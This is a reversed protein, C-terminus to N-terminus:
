RAADLAPHEVIQVIGISVQDTSSSCGFTSFALILIVGIVLLKKLIKM